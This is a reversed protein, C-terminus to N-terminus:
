ISNQNDLQCHEFVISRLIDYDKLWAGSVQEKVDQLLFIVDDILVVINEELSPNIANQLRCAVDPHNKHILDWYTGLIAKIPAQPAQIKMELIEKTIISGLASKCYSEVEHKVEDDSKDDLHPFEVGEFREENIGDNSINLNIKM